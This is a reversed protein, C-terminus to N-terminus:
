DVDNRDWRKQFEQDAQHGLLPQIGKVKSMSEFLYKGLTKEYQAEM